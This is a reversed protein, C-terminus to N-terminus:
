GTSCSLETEPTQKEHKLELLDLNLFYSPLTFFARSLNGFGSNVDM